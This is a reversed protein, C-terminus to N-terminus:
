QRRRWTPRYTVRAMMGMTKTRAKRCAFRPCFSLPCFTFSRVMKGKEDEVEDKGAEDGGDGHGKPHTGTDEGMDLGEALKENDQAIAAMPRLVSITLSTFVPPAGAKPAQQQIPIVTYGAQQHLM